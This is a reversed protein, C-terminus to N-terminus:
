ENFILTVIGVSRWRVGVRELLVDLIEANYGHPGLYLYIARVRWRSASAAGAIAADPRPLAEAVVRRITAPCGRHLESGPLVTGGCNAPIEADGPEIGLARLASLRDGLEGASIRARTSANAEEVSSDSVLPAPDV